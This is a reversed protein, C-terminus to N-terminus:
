KMENKESYMLPDAYLSWGPFHCSGCVHKTRLLLKVGRTHGIGLASFPGLTGLVSFSPRHPQAALLWSGTTISAPSGPAGHM